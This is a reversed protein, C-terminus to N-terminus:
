SNNKKVKGITTLYNELSEMIVPDDSLSVNLKDEVRKVIEDIKSKPLSNESEKKNGLLWNPSVDYLNALKNLTETDPDRYNREYGSITGNTIGLRKAVEMQTYKKKERAFKLREGLTETIFVM